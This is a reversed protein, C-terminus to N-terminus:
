GSQERECHLIRFWLCHNRDNNRNEVLRRQYSSKERVQPLSRRSRFNNYGITSAGIARSIESGVNAVPENRALLPTGPLHIRRRM